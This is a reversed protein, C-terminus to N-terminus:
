VHNLNGIRAVRIGRRQIDEEIANKM